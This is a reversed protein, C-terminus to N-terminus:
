DRDFRERISEVNRLRWLSTVERAIITGAGAVAAVVATAALTGRMTSREFAAPTWGSAAVVFWGGVGVGCAGLAFSRVRSKPPAPVPLSKPPPQVAVIRDSRESAFVLPTGPAPASVSPAADREFVQPKLSETTMAVSRGGFIGPRPRPQHAAR